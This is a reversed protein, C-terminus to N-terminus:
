SRSGSSGSLARLFSSLATRVSWAPQYLSSDMISSCVRAACATAATRAPLRGSDATLACTNLYTSSSPQPAPPRQNKRRSPWIEYTLVEEQGNRILEIDVLYEENRLVEWAIRIAEATAAVPQGQIRTVIDGERLGRKYAESEQPVKALLLGDVQKAADHHAQIVVENIYKGINELYGRYQKESMIMQDPDGFIEDAAEGEAAATETPQGAAAPRAPPTAPVYAPRPTPPAAASATAKEPKPLNVFARQGDKEIEIKDEWIGVIRFAGITDGVAKGVQGGNTDILFVCSVGAGVATGVLRYTFQSALDAPPQATPAADITGPRETTVPADVIRGSMVISTAEEQSLRRDAATVGRAAQSPGTSGPQEPGAPKAFVNAAAIVLVIALAADAAWVAKKLDQLKM